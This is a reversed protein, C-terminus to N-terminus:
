RRARLYLKEIDRDSMGSFLNRAELLADRPMASAANAAGLAASTVHAKSASHASFLRALTKRKEEIRALTKEGNAALYAEKPSLGMTRLALYRVTDEETVAAVDEETFLETLYTREEDPIALAVRPAEGDPASADAAFATDGDPMPAIAEEHLVEGEAAEPTERTNICDEM